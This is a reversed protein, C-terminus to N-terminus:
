KVSVTKSICNGATDTAYVVYLGPALAVFSSGDVDVAAAMRGAADYVTAHAGAANVTIGGDAVSVTMGDNEADAIGDSKAFTVALKTYIGPMDFATSMVPTEGNLSYSHFTYGADPVANITLPLYKEVKSGHTYVKGAADTVTFTGNAAPLIDLYANDCGQNVGRHSPTWERDIAISTDSRDADNANDDLGQYLCLDWKVSMAGKDVSGDDVRVPLSYYFDNLEEASMGNGNIYIMQLGKLKSLDVKHLNNCALSLRRLATNGSLDISSINNHDLNLEDLKTNKSLDVAALKNQMLSLEELETNQTLDISTLNNGSLTAWRLYPNKTLDITSLENGKVDLYQLIPLCTLDIASLSKVGDTLGGSNDSYAQLWMLDPCASLDLSTIATYSCNLVELKTNKSLDLAPVPNFYINLLKLGPCHTVDMSNIKNDWLGWELGYEGFGSCDFATIDGYVTVISGAAKGDIRVGKVEASGSTYPYQGPYETLQGTGWDIWVSGNRSATNLIFSLDQGPEVGFSIYPDEDEFNVKVTADESIIFWPSKIEKGNVTVSKFCKGEDPYSYVCMPVGKLASDHVSAVTQFWEPQWQALIFRGGETQMVDLDYKLSYGSYPYLRELVGTKNEGTDTAGDLTVSLPSFEATGDGTIDCIWNMEPTTLFEIDAHEAKSGAVFLNTSWAQRCMPLTKLTYAMSEYTFNPCNRLDVKRMHEPQIGNFDLFELQSGSADFSSLFYAGLLDLRSIPTNAINLSSLSPVLKMDLESIKTDHLLLVSLNKNNGLDLSTMETNSVNLSILEPAQTLDIHTIGTGDIYLSTLNRCPTVDLTAIGKNGSLTLDTLQPYNGLVFPNDTYETMLQNNSLDLLHLSPLSVPYFNSLSCNALNVNRLTAHSEEPMCIFVSAMEPCDNATLYELNTLDRMDLCQLGTNHSIDLDRLSEGAYDLTLNSGESPNNILRNNSLDLDVLPTYSMLRFSTMENDSLDLKALHSMDKVEASTLAANSLQLETINGSITITTGRITGDIWRNYDPLSPDVTFKQVNGDGFDISVPVTASVVNPLLRVATGPEAGTTLTITGQGYAGAAMMASLLVLLSKKM